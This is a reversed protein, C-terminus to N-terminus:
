NARIEVAMPATIDGPTPMVLKANFSKGPAVAFSGIVLGSGLENVRIKKKAGNLTLPGMWHFSPPNGEPHLPATIIVSFTKPRNSDNKLEFVLDWIVGYCGEVARSDGYKKIAQPPQLQKRFAKTGAFLFAAAGRVPTATALESARVTQKGVWRAGRYVGSARGYAGASTSAMHGHATRMAAFSSAPAGPAVALVDVAVAAGEAVTVEYRGDVESGVATRHRVLIASQRPPVLLSGSKFGREPDEFFFGDASAANPGGYGYRSSSWGGYTNRTMQVAGRFSVRAPAEGPNYLAVIFDVAGKNKNLHHVYVAFRGRLRQTLDGRGQTPASTRLLFGLTDFMEPNNSVVLPTNDLAGALAQCQSDQFSSKVRTGAPPSSPPSSRSTLDSAITGATRQGHSLSVFLFLILSVYQM